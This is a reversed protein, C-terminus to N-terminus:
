RRVVVFVSTGRRNILLVVNGKTKSYLDQFKQLNDVPTRNVELLVDGPRLGARAAASQPNIRTVLAGKQVDAGLEFARRNDANLDELTLGDLSNGTTAPGGTHPGQAPDAGPMEGLQVSLTQPKGDRYLELAAAKNAGLAAVQNRFAGASSVERGDIKVVVDGRHIGARAAPAGPKVDAILVGRTVPLKLGAALEADMDQIGVGLWGRVVRGSTKLSEMIPLAMNTPIAFGIGQYGGSRSLIATNVGVLQGQMNILAGGSNGPNIAADTQIFDEYDVIGLDARGKASVIGMTVTQGVGFPNGVALVVDGLRLKSSDGFEVPKLGSVSGKLKIVAVDSKPDTGVVTAEFERKDYTTVKIVSADSVVHNNTLVFGDSSVIVGSGMGQERREGSDQPPGFFFPFQRGGPQEHSVKTLSINVVSPLVREAIDAISTSGVQALAPSQAVTVPPPGAARAPEATAEARAPRAACGSAVALASLAVAGLQLSIRRSNSPSLNNM